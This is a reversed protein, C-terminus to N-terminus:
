FTKTQEFSIAHLFLPRRPSSWTQIIEQHEFIANNIISQDIGIAKVRDQLCLLKLMGKLGVYKQEIKDVSLVYDILKNM